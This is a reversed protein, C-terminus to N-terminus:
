GAGHEHLLKEIESFGNDRAHDLPTKDFDDKMNVDAGYEVLLKCIELYGLRVAIHLLNSKGEKLNPDCGTKLMHRLIEVQNNKVRNFVDAVDANTM